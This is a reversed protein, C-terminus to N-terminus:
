PLLTSCDNLWSIPHPHSPTQHHHQPPFLVVQCLDQRTVAPSLQIDKRSFTTTTVPPSPTKMYPASLNLAGVEERGPWVVTERDWNGGWITRKHVLLISRYQDALHASLKSLATPLHKTKADTASNCIQTHKSGDAVAVCCLSQLM